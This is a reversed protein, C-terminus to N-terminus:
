KFIKDWTKKATHYDIEVNPFHHDQPYIYLKFFGALVAIPDVNADFERYYPGMKISPSPIWLHNGWIDNGSAYLTNANSFFYFSLTAKSKPIMNIVDIYSKLLVAFVVTIFDTDPKLVDQNSSEKYYLEVYGDQYIKIEVEINTSTTAYKIVSLPHHSSLSFSPINQIKQQLLQIYGNKVAMQLNTVIANYLYQEPSPGQKAGVFGFMFDFSCNYGFITPPNQNNNAM